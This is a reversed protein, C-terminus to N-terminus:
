MQCFQNKSGGRGGSKLTPNHIARSRRGLGGTEWRFTRLHVFWSDCILMSIQPALPSHLDCQITISTGLREHRMESESAFKNRAGTHLRTKKLCKQPLKVIIGFARSASLARSASPGLPWRDSPDFSGLPRGLLGLARFASLARLARPTWRGSPDLPGLPRLAWSASPGSPDLPGLGKHDKEDDQNPFLTYCGPFNQM